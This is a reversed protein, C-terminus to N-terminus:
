YDRKGKRKTRRQHGDYGSSNKLSVQNRVYKNRREYRDLIHEQLNEYRSYDDYSSDHYSSDDYSSDHYSSDHHSRGHHSRNRTGQHPRRNTHQRGTTRISLKALDSLM